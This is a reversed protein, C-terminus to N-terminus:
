GLRPRFDASMLVRVKLLFEFGNDRRTAGSASTPPIWWQWQMDGNRRWWQESRLGSRLLTTTSWSIIETPVM